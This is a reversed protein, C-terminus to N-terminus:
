APERRPGAEELNKGLLLADLTGQYYRPITKLVFYGHRKYFCLAAHNDVAVELQVSRCAAARLRKEAERMLRSGLKLRRAEPLVDITVVHGAGSRLKQAVIFGLVREGEAAPAWEADMEAVLAFSGPHKLYHLLEERTYAIGPPFCRKDIRLLEEQDEERYDRLRIEGRPQPSAKTAM